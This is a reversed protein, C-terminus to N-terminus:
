IMWTGSGSWVRAVYGIATALPSLVAPPSANADYTTPGAPWAVSAFHPKRGGFVLLGGAAPVGNDSPPEGVGEAASRRAAERPRLAQRLGTTQPLSQERRRGTASSHCMRGLRLEMPSPSEGERDDVGCAMSLANM